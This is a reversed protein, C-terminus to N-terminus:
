YTGFFDGQLSFREAFARAPCAMAAHDAYWTANLPFRGDALVAARFEALDFPARAKKEAPLFKSIIGALAEVVTKPSEKSAAKGTDDASSVEVVAEDKSQRKILMQESRRDGAAAVSDGDDALVDDILDGSFQPRTDEDEGVAALPNAVPEVTGLNAVEASGKELEEEDDDSDDEEKDDDEDDGDEVEVDEGGLSEDGAPDAELVHKEWAEEAKEPWGTGEEDEAVTLNVDAVEDPVM